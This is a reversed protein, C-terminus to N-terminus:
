VRWPEGTTIPYPLRRPSGGWARLRDELDHLEQLELQPGAPLPLWATLAPRTSRTM